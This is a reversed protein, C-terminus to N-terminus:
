WVMAMELRSSKSIQLQLSQLCYVSFSILTFISPSRTLNLSVHTSISQFCTFPLIKLFVLMWRDRQLDDNMAQMIKSIKSVYRASGFPEPLLAEHNQAHMARLFPIFTPLSLIRNISFVLRASVGKRQELRIGSSAHSELLHIPIRIQWDSKNTSRGIACGLSPVYRDSASPLTPYSQGPPLKKSIITLM